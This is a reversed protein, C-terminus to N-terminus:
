NLFSYVMINPKADNETLFQVAAVGYDPNNLKKAAIALYPAFSKNNEQVINQYKWNSKDQLYPYLYNYALKISKGDESAYNWLDVDVKEGIQALTTFAELNYMTYDMSRTRALERPMSGDAQIQTTIRKVKAQEVISKSIDQRGIYYAFSAVQADYWVSHNNTAAAEKKGLTSQQLWDVYDSFWKKLSSSDTETWNESNELMKVSDIISILSVTDIIGSSRGTDKGPVGQGYDLNPNMKTDANLFWTRLLEASHKAYDEKDTLYYALSLTNVTSIMKSLRASDYKDTDNKEPNVQGDKNIYPKGNAKTPDPWYYIAMSIYEHSDAGEPLIKKQTVSLPQIKLAANASKIIKNVSSKMIDPTTATDKLKSLSLSDYLIFENQNKTNSDTTNQQLNNKIYDIESQSCGTLLFIFSSILLSSIIRLKNKM